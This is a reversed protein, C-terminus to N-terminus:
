WNNMTQIAIFEVAESCNEDSGNQFLWDISVIFWNSFPHWENFMGNVGTAASIFALSREPTDDEFEVVNTDVRLKEEKSGGNLLVFLAVEIFAPM